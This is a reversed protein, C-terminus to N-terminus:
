RTGRIARRRLRIPGKARSPDVVVGGQLIEVYGKAVLRRAAQRTPEMLARWGEGGVTRAIESPCFTSSRREAMDVIAEELARDRASLRSKRCRASCYRMQEWNRAWKPRWSFRRGCKACIKEETPRM